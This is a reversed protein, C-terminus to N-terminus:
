KKPGTAVLVREKTRRRPVITPVYEEMASAEGRKVNIVPFFSFDFYYIEIFRYMFFCSQFLFDHKKIYFNKNANIYLIHYIMLYSYVHICFTEGRRTRGQEQYPLV